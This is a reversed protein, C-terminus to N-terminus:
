TSGSPVVRLLGRLLEFNDQNDHTRNNRNNTKHLMNHERLQWSESLKYAAGM